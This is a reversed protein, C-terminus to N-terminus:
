TTTFNKKVFNLLYINEGIENGDVMCGTEQITQSIIQNYLTSAIYYTVM